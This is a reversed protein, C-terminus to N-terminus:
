AAPRGGPAIPHGAADMFRAGLATLLGTGGDTSASSGLGIILHSVGHGEGLAAAIAEGLGFTSADMPRLGSSLMEIGCSSALEVVVVPEDGPLLLWSAEAATGDPGTVTVPMRRADPVAGAFADLTGEGGDAMPLLVIEDDPRASRWGESLARAVMAATASGKFSDPAIVIRQHM